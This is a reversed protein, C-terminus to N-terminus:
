QSLAFLLTVSIFVREFGFVDSSLFSRLSLVAIREDSLLVIEKLPPATSIALRSFPSYTRLSVAAGLPYVFTSDVNTNSTLSPTTVNFLASVVPKVTLSPFLITIM